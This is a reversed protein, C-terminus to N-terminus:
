MRSIIRGDLTMYERMLNATTCSHAPLIKIIDGPKFCHAMKSPLRVIGHEQSLKTLYAGNIIHEWGEGNDTVVIGYVEEGDHTIVSDKAFHISGGYIVVEDREPHTAVVPCAMAVAVQVPLCSGILLQMYDYFVFNGPRLEDVQRFDKMVSCSPTDGVSIIIGPYNMIFHSKLQNMRSISENHVESIEEFSRSRYSHGAHTLFGTFSMKDTGSIEEILKGISQYDDFRIGTRKYGIDVKIYIRVKSTLNESLFQLTDSSEVLLSLVCKQALRNITETELINVPFAVLIDKWGGDAFYEAMRLSSVTIKNVGEERFWEGIERSVHTKFHPRFVVDNERALSAMNRINRRCKEEDLLLTPVTIM